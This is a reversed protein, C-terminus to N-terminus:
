IYSKKKKKHRKVTMVIATIISALTLLVLALFWIPCIIVNKEKTEVKGNYYITQSIKMIGISPLNSVNREVDRTTEPMVVENYIGDDGETPLIVTGTFANSVQIIFTADEHINGENQLVARLKVPVVVSFGPVYNELIDGSRKTEGAVSGYIISAMEFVSQVAVGENSELSDDSAVTIAAYQGGAPVDEPVTITFEVDKSENPAIEGTPEDIKIWKTIMSRNNETALDVTYDRGMVSYPTVSVKYAFNETADAPNVVTVKGTYVEGPELSFRQSMPLITFSNNGM